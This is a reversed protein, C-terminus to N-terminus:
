VTDGFGTPEPEVASCCHIQPQSGVRFRLKLKSRRTRIFKPPQAMSNPIAVALAGAVVVVAAVKIEAVFSCSCCCYRSTIALALDLM